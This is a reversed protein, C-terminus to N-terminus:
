TKENQQAARVMAVIGARLPEPLHPWAETMALLDPDTEQPRTSPFSSPSASAGECTETEGDSTSGAGPKRIRRDRTRTWAPAGTRVSAAPRTEDRLTASELGNRGNPSPASTVSSNRDTAGDRATEHASQQSIQQPDDAGAGPTGTAQALEPKAIGPLHAREAQRADFVSTGTV